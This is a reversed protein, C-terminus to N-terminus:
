RCTSRSSTARRRAREDLTEAQEVGSRASATPPSSRTTPSSACRRSRARPPRGAPRDARLRPRRADERGARDRGLELAGLPGAEAGRAGAPHQARARRAPRDDARRGLRHDVRARERGRDRSAHGRRRRRQRRGRRRPRDGEAAHRARDPRRHAEDGLPHRDRRLRRHDGRSRCDRDVDVDFRTRLLEVGAEAIPERVLVRMLRGRRGLRVGRLRARLPERRPEVDAGAQRALEVEVARSRRRSTTSRRLPRHPRDPLAAPCTATVARSPSGTGTASRSALEVADIGEPTLAGTLVASSDDDPSYLELGIAKSARAARAGSRRSAPRVSRRPRGGPRPRAGRRARRRDVDAPTFPTSRKAQAGASAPGTGTSARSRRREAREWARDSVAAFALGPPTM